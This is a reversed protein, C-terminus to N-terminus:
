TIHVLDPQFQRLERLLTAENRLFQTDFYLDTDIPFSMPSRRIEVLRLSGCNEQSNERGAHVSLFPLNRDRAYEQFRRCTLAAGNVEHFSDAFLAVRPVAIL